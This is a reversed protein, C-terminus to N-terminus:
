YSWKKRTKIIDELMEIPVEQVIKSITKRKKAEPLQMLANFLENETTENEVLKINDTFDKNVNKKSEDSDDYEYKRKKKDREETNEKCKIKSVVYNLAYPDYQYYGGQYTKIIEIIKKECSNVDQEDGKIQVKCNEDIEVEIIRPVLINVNFEKELEKSLRFILGFFCQPFDCPYWKRKSLSYIEKWIMSPHHSFNCSMGRNCGGRAIFHCLIQKKKDQDNETIKKEAENYILDNKQGINTALDMLDKTVSMNYIKECEEIIDRIMKTGIKKETIKLILWAVFRTGFVNRPIWRLMWLITYDEKVYNICYRFESDILENNMM